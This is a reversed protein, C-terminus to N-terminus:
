ELVTSGVMTTAKPYIAKFFDLRLSVVDWAVLCSNYYHAVCEYAVIIFLLILVTSQTWLSPNNRESYLAWPMDPLCQKLLFFIFCSSLLPSIRGIACIILSTIPHYESASYAPSKILALSAMTTLVVSSYIPFGCGVEGILTSLEVQFTMLFQLICCFHELAM